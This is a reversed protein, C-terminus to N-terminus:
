KNGPELLRELDYKSSCFCRTPQGIRQICAATKDNPCSLQHLEERADMNYEADDYASGACGAVLAFSIAVLFCAPKRVNNNNTKHM